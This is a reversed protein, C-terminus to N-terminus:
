NWKILFTKVAITVNPIKKRIKKSKALKSEVFKVKTESETARKELVTVKEKLYTIEKKLEERLSKLTIKPNDKAEMKRFNINEEGAILQKSPPTLLLLGSLGGEKSLLLSLGDDVSLMVALLCALGSQIPARKYWFECKVHYEECSVSKGHEYKCHSPNVMSMQVM